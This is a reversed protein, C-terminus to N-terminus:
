DDRATPFGVSDGTCYPCSPHDCTGNETERDHYVRLFGALTAALHDVEASNADTEDSLAQTEVRLDSVTKNLEGIMKDNAKVSDGRSNIRERYQGIKILAAALTLFAGLAGTIAGVTAASVM